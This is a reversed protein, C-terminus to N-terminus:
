PREKRRLMVAGLVGGLSSLILFLVFMMMLGMIMVLALGQPSKLYQLMQQAQPETNRSAAQDIAQRLANRLEGGSHFLATELGTLLAFIGFGLMGSLAGLRAGLGSTLNADFSRRRYFLVCLFGAAIMGLGFSAGLPIIM